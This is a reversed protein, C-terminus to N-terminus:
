ISVKPQEYDFVLRLCLYRGGANAVVIRRTFHRKNDILEFGWIQLWICTLEVTLLISKVLQRQLIFLPDDLYGVQEATWGSSVSREFTHVWAGESGEYIFGTGDPSDLHNEGRLFTKVEQANDVETQLEFDPRIHGGSDPSGHVFESQGQVEGFIYDKHEKIEWSLTRKETTGGLKGGATQNFDINTVPEGTEPQPTQYTTINIYLTVAAMAKRLLWPVGQLKLIPDIEGSLGKNMVWNGNLNGITIDEPTAM